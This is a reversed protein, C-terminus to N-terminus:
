RETSIKPDGVGGPPPEPKSSHDSESPSASREQPSLLGLIYPSSQPQSKLTELAMDTWDAITKVYALFGNAVAQIEGATQSKEKRERFPRIYTALSKNPGEAKGYLWHLIENRETRLQTIETFGADIEARQKPLRERLLARLLGVYRDGNMNNLIFKCSEVLGAHTCIKMISLEIHSDLQAARTAVAAIAYHHEDPLFPLKNVM